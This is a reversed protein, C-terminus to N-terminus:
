FIGSSKLCSVLEDVSALMKGKERKAPEVVRLVKLGRSLSKLYMDLKKEELPKKKAQIIKPLAIHRPTNLRLDTTIVCPLRLQITELGGDVERTVCFSQDEFKIKSVFTGQGWGLRQALMQGTQNADSDIAQKGLLVCDPKEEEIVGALVKAVDLSRLNEQTEILIARDVGMALATRLIDQAKSSGITVAVVEKVVGQEKWRVAQELAIEDFPNLSMKAYEIDVGSHDSRVKIHVNYDVVRKVSVLVKM